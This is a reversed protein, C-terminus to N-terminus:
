SAVPTEQPSIVEGSSPGPLGQLRFRVAPIAASTTEFPHKKDLAACRYAPRFGPRSGASTGDILTYISM